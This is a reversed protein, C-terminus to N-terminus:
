AHLFVDNLTVTRLGRSQILAGIQDLAGIIGPHNAHGIVIREATLWRRAFGLIEDSSLVSSDSLSGNWMVETTYGQDAAIRDTRENHFGFPPRLFPRGSVGYTNTLFKENRSIQDAVDYDSLRTLNPHSWTHNGLQVQGSDVLPRLQAANDTWSPNNGNPFFTLRIGSRRAFDAYASVVEASTGDDVTLALLGRHGPLAAIMGDPASRVLDVASVVPHTGQSPAAGGAGLPVAGAQAELGDGSAAPHGRVELWSGLAAISGITAVSLFARRGLRGRAM